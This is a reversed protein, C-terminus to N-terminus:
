IGYIIKTLKLNNGSIVALISCQCCGHSKWKLGKIISWCLFCKIVEELNRPPLSDQLQKLHNIYAPPLVDARTSLYQGLKVWLGELEVILKLVRKANSEHAKEWLEDRKSSKIWKERVQLAQLYIFAYSLPSPIPMTTMCWDLLSWWITIMTVCM